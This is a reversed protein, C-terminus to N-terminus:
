FCIPIKYGGVKGAELKAVQFNEFQGTQVQGHLNHNRILNMFRALAHDTTFDYFTFKYKYASQDQIYGFLLCFKFKRIEKNSFQSTFVSARRAKLVQCREKFEKKSLIKGTNEDKLMPENQFIVLNKANEDVQFWEKAAKQVMKIAQICREDPISAFYKNCKIHGWLENTPTSYPLNTNWDDEKAFGIGITSFKPFGVIAQEKDVKVRFQWFDENIKPTVMFLINGVQFKNKDGDLFKGNVELILKPQKEKAKM